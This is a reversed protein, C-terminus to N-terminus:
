AVNAQKHLLDSFAAPNKDIAFLLTRAAGSPECDGQEWEQISRLPIYYRRAFERQSLGLRDRLARVDTLPPVREPEGLESTDSDDELMHRAIDEETTADIKAKDIFGKGERAKKASVRVIAM